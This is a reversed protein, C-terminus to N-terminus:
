SGTKCQSTVEPPARTMQHLELRLCRQTTSDRYNPMKVMHPLLQSLPQPMLTRRVLPPDPPSPTLIYGPTYELSALLTTQGQRHLSVATLTEIIPRWHFYRRQFGQLPLSSPTPLWSEITTDMAAKEGTGLLRCALLHDESLALPETLPDM